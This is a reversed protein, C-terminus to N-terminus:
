FSMSVGVSAKTQDKVKAFGAKLIAGGGLGHSVGVGFGKETTSTEGTEAKNQAYIANINTNGSDDTSIGIEVGTGTTKMDDDMKQRAYFLKGSFAGLDASVSAQMLKESDMGIGVTTSGLAFSVGAAWETDQSTVTKMVASEAMVEATLMKGNITENEEAYNLQHNNLLRLQDPTAVEDKTDQQSGAKDSDVDVDDGANATGTVDDQEGVVLIVVLDGVAHTSENVDAFTGDTAAINEATLKHIYFNEIEEEDAATTSIDLKTKYEFTERGVVSTDFKVPDEYKSLKNAATGSAANTTDTIWFYTRTQEVQEYTAAAYEVAPTVEVKKDSSTQGATIALTATGLSFSLEVDAQTGGIEALDDVGAGVFGIDGLSQGKNSAPDLSGIKITWSEGSIFVESDTIENDGSQNSEISATAGFTLGGDTTGSSSMAIDFDSIWKIVSETETMGEMEDVSETAAEYAVGMGASGKLTVSPPAAAEQALAGTGALGLVAVAAIIYRIM